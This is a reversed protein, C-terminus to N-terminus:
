VSEGLKRENVVFGFKTSLERIQTALTEDLNLIHPWNGERSRWNAILFCIWIRPVKLM